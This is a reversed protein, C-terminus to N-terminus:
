LPDENNRQRVASPRRGGPSAPARTLSPVPSRVRSQGRALSGLTARDDIARRQLIPPVSRASARWCRRRADSPTQRLASNGRRLSGTEATWFWPGRPPCSCRTAGNETMRLWGQTAGEETMSSGDKPSKKWMVDSDVKTARKRPRCCNVGFRRQGETQPLVGDMQEGLGSCARDGDNELPHVPPATLKEDLGAVSPSVDAAAANELAM